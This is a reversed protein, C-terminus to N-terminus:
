YVVQPRRSQHVPGDCFVWADARLLDRNRELSSRLHPSGVEEEGEFYFKLNVSPSVRAARLADLAALMAVIAAKDDSTARGYLRAEEDLQSYDEPFPIERGGQELPKDRLVPKWPSGTWQSPDVPQGDYHAYFVVTYKAASSRLEAFVAPPAEPEQLLRAEIGRGRLLGVLHEANREINPRDSALNPLAVFDALERVIAAAHSVRWREVNAPAPKPAEQGRSGLTVLLAATAALRNIISRGQRAM